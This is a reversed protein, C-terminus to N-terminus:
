LAARPSGYADGGGDSNVVYGHMGFSSDIKGDPFYRMMVCNHYYAQQGVMIIKGDPQLLLQKGTAISLDGVRTVLKGNLGFTSDFDAPQTYAAVQVLAVIILLFHRIRM